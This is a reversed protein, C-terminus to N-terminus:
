GDRALLPDECDDPAAKRALTEPGCLRYGRARALSLPLLLSLGFTALFRLQYQYTEASCRNAPTLAWYLLCAAVGGLVPAVAKELGSQPSLMIEVACLLQVAFALYSGWSHWDRWDLFYPSPYRYWGNFEQWGIRGYSLVLALLTMLAVLSALSFQWRAAHPGGRPRLCRVRRNVRRTLFLVGAAALFQLPVFMETQGFVAQELGCV